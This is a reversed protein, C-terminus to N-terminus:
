APGKRTNRELAVFLGLCEELAYTGLLWAAACALGMALLTLGSTFADGGPVSLLPGALYALTNKSDGASIWILLCGALSLPALLSAAIEGSLKLLLRAIPLPGVADAPLGALESARIWSLHCVLYTSLALGAQLLLLGFITATTQGSAQKWLTISWLVAGILALAAQVKLIWTFVPRFFRNERLLRLFAPAILLKDM